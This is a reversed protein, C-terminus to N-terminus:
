YVRGRGNPLPADYKTRTQGYAALIARANNPCDAKVRAVYDAPPSLPWNHNSPRSKPWHPVGWGGLVKRRFALAKEGPSVTAALGRSAHGWENWRTFYESHQVGPEDWEQQMQQKNM